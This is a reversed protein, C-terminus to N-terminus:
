EIILKGTRLVSADEMRITYFYIGHPLERVDLEEGTHIRASRYVERGAADTLSLVFEESSKGSLRIVGRSPNPVVTVFPRTTITQIGSTNTVIVTQYTTDSFCGAYSEAILMVNYTGPQAYYHLTDFTSYGSTGDGFDWFVRSYDTSRNDLYVTTGTDPFAQFLAVPQGIIRLTVPVTTTQAPTGNDTGSFQITHYGLNNNTATVFVSANAIIGQTQSLITADQTNNLNVSAQTLQNTEPSVFDANLTITDGLCLVVTDCTSLSSVIPSVNFSSICTNFLFSQNDLFDVGDYAGSPGDYANGPQDFRGIQIFNTGNGQNVGVTAPTGGFGGVGQSASGTTWEMDKYCFSVNYGMPLLPDMGDTLILQFANRKDDQTNFYGVSDWQIILHTNTLQYYILGSLAGRTDVDAWFPAIMVYNSNPFSDSSFTGYSTGFSINGNNNIFLKRLYQGYFCFPSVLTITDTSCDDNRYEITDVLTGCNQFPVVPWGNDRPIWCNCNSITRYSENQSVIVSSHSDSNRVVNIPVKGDPLPQSPAVAQAVAASVSQIIIWCLLLSKKM